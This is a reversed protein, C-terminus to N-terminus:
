GQEKRKDLFARAACQAEILAESTGHRVGGIAAYLRGLVEGAEALLGEARTARAEAAEASSALALAVKLADAARLNYDRFDLPGTNGARIWLSHKDELLERQADTLTM